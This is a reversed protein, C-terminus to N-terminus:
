RGNLPLMRHVPPYGLIGAASVLNIIVGQQQQKFVPVVRRTCYFQADICVAMCDRWEQDTVDEVMKTPGTVGANNVMIDLGDPLIEDFIADLEASNAVNCVYTTIGEPLSALAAEDLDCTYVKAGLKHMALATARGMGAGGATIFVRKNQLSIQM